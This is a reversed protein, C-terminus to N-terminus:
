SSGSATEYPLDPVDSAISASFAAIARALAAISAPRFGPMGSLTRELTARSAGSPESAIANRKPTAM